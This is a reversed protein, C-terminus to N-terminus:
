YVSSSDNFWGTLPTTTLQVQLQTNTVDHVGGEREVLVVLSQNGPALLLSGVSNAMGLINGSSDRLVCGSRGDPRTFLVWELLATNALGAFEAVFQPEDHPFLWVADVDLTNAVTGTGSMGQIDLQWGADGLRTGTTPTLLGARSAPPLALTGLNLMHWTGSQLVTSVAGTYLPNVAYNLNDPLVSFRGRFQSPTPTPTTPLAASPANGILTNDLSFPLYGPAPVSVIAQDAQQVYVTAPANNADLYTVSIAQSPLETQTASTWLRVDDFRADITANASGVRAGCQVYDPVLTAPADAPVDLSMTGTVSATYVTNVTYLYGTVTYTANQAISAPTIVLKIWFPSALDSTILSPFATFAIAGASGKALVGFAGAQVGFAALMGGFPWTYLTSGNVMQETYDLVSSGVLLLALAGSTSLAGGIQMWAGVCLPNADPLLFSKRVGLDVIGWPTAVVQTGLPFTATGDVRLGYAGALAYLTSVTPQGTGYTCNNTVVEWQSTDGSEFGDAFINPTWPYVTTVSVASTTVSSAGGSTNGSARITYRDPPLVYGFDTLTVPAATLATPMAAAAAGERVRVFVDYLGPANVPATTGSTARGIDHWLGDTTSARAFDSGVANSQGTSLTSPIIASCNVVGAWDAEAMGGSPGNIARRGIRVRNIAGATSVDKIRLQGLAALTGPLSGVAAGSGVWAPVTPGLYLIGPAGSTLTSTYTNPAPWTTAAMRGYPLCSLTLTVGYSGSPNVGRDVPTMTGELVDYFTFALQNATTSTTAYRLALVVPQGTGVPGGAQKAQELKHELARWNAWVNTADTGGSFVSLTLTIIRNPLSRPSQMRPAAGAVSGPQTTPPASIGFQEILYNTQDNLNLFDRSAPIADPTSTGMAQVADGAALFALLPYRAAASPPTTVTTQVTTVAAAASDTAVCLYYYTTAAVATSDVLALATKGTLSTPAGAAFGSVQSRYWQYTYAPTGGTAAPATIAVSTSTVTGVVPLGIALPAALTTVSVQTSTATFPSSQSDSAVCKYYYLTAPSATADHLFLATAGALSNGGGPTFGTSTSRYWQYTYPPVGGSAAVAGITVTTSTYRDITAVPAVLAAPPVAATLVPTTLTVGTSDVVQLAYYYTRGAAVTSDSLTTSTAGALITSVNTAFVARRSRYWQYAYPMSGGTAGSDTAPVNSSTITGLAANPLALATHSDTANGDFHYIALVGTGTNSEETTLAALTTGTSLCSNYIALEDIDGNIPSAGATTAGVFIAAPVGASYPSYLGYAVTQAVRTGDVYVSETQTTPSVITLTVAIEHWASDAISGPGFLSSGGCNVWPVGSALWIVLQPYGGANYMSLLYQNAPSTSTCRVRVRVTFAGNSGVSDLPSPGVPLTVYNGAGAANAFCAGFNGANRTNSVSVATPWSTSGVLTGNYTGM